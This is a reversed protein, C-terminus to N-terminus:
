PTWAGIKATKTRTFSDTKDLVYYYLSNTGIDLSTVNARWDPPKRDLRNGQALTLKIAVCWAEDTQEKKFDTALRAGLSLQEKTPKSPFALVYNTTIDPVGYLDCGGRCIETAEAFDKLITEAQAPKDIEVEIRYVRETPHLRSTTTDSRWWVRILYENTTTKRTYVDEVTRYVKLAALYEDPSTLFRGSEPVYWRQPAGVVKQAEDRTSGFTFFAGEPAPQQSWALVAVVVLVAIIMFARM